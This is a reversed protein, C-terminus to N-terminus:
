RAIFNMILAVMTEKQQPKSQAILLALAVLANNNFKREGIKNFLLKNRELFLIFLFSGIRKNGDTFPHDKIIFYLLHAAKAEISSYLEKGGFTQYINGLIAHLMENRERGFIETAEKKRMLSLKLEHIAVQAIDSTLRYALKHKKVPAPINEDDYQQLWIWTDAYQTIIELLGESESRSLQQAHMTQKILTLANELDRLPAQPLRHKNVTFGKVLHDRLVRTAWIRFQTGEKSNVRYGISLIMDLNYFEIEREIERNGEKQVTAFNAVTSAKDLELSAYINRIHRSIGSKDVAFLQSLQNLTLWVTENLIKVEVSLKGTKSQYIMIEGTNKPM